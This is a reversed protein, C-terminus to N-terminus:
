IDIVKNESPSSSSEEVEVTMPDTKLLVYDGKETDYVWFSINEVVYEGANKPMFVIEINMESGLNGNQVYYERGETMSKFQMGDPLEVTVDKMDLNGLDGIGSINVIMIANSGAKIVGDPVSSSIEFHGVAGSFNEPKHKSPLSKVKVNVSPAGVDLREIRAPFRGRGPFVQPMEGAVGIRYVGGKFTKKGADNVGIFYRDIVASLYTEGNHQKPVLQSDPASQQAPNGGFDPLSVCEVSAINDRSTFLVVEYILREGEMLNDRSVRTELFVGPSPNKEKGSANSGALLLLITLIFQIRNM